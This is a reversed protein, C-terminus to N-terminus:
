MRFRLLLTLVALSLGLGVHFAPEPVPVVSALFGYDGGARHSGSFEFDFAGTVALEFDGSAVALYRIASGLGGSDDNEAVMQGAGDFLGIRTDPGSTGGRVLPSTAVTIIDGAEVDRIPIRMVESNVLTNVGAVVFPTAVRQVYGVNGSAGPTVVGLSLAYIGNQEHSLGTTPLGAVGIFFPETGDSVARVVSGAAGTGGDDNFSLLSENSDFCGGVTDPGTGAASLPTTIATVVQGGELGMLRVVDIDDPVLALPSVAAITSETTRVVTPPNLFNDNFGEVDLLILGPWSADPDSALNFALDDFLAGGVSEQALRLEVSGIIGGLDVSSEVLQTAGSILNYSTPGKLVAGSPSRYTVVVTEAEPDNDGVLVSVSTAGVINASNSPDVFTITTPEERQGMHVFHTPSNGFNATGFEGEALVLGSYPGSGAFVVGQSVLETSLVTGATVSEFTVTAAVAANSSVVLCGVAGVVVRLIRM